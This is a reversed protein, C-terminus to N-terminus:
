ATASYPVTVSAAYASLSVGEAAEAIVKGQRLQIREDTLGPTGDGANVLEYVAEGINTVNATARDPDHEGQPSIAFTRATANPPVLSCPTRAALEHPSPRHLDQRKQSCVSNIDAPKV